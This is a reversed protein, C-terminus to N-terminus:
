RRKRSSKKAGGKRAKSGGGRSTTLAGGGGGPRTNRIVISLLGQPAKSSLVNATEASFTEKLRDAEEKTLRGLDESLEVTIQVRRSAM